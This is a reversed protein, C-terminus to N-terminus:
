YTITTYIRTIYTAHSRTDSYIVLIIIPNYKIHEVFTLLIKVCVCVCTSAFHRSTGHEEKSPTTLHEGKTLFPSARTLSKNYSNQFGQRGKNEICSYHLKKKKEEQIAICYWASRRRRLPRRGTL